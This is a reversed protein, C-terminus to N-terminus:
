AVAEREHTYGKEILYEVNHFILHTLDEVRMPWGTHQIIGEARERLDPNIGQKIVDRAEVAVALMISKM